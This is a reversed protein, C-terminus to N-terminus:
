SPGYRFVDPMEKDPHFVFYHTRMSVWSGAFAGCYLCTYATM